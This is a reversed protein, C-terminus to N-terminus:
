WSAQKRWAVTRERLEHYFATRRERLIEIRYERAKALNQASMRSMRAPDMVIERIKAALAPASGPPVIDEQPLLEPIGGVTSGICPLARAMAEVMARPLGEQRSPLVFLDSRDLVTRVAKGAPLQGLFSVREKLGLREALTELECLYAGQGVMAVTLDLGDKVCSAVAEILVEPAKYLQAFTGVHVLNWTKKQEFSRPASVLADDTIRVGSVGVMQQACPYRQQLARQTVYLAGSAKACQRRLQWYSWWRLLPRLPHRVAGPAFSDYPDGVVEVGYPYQMKTLFNRACFGITGPSITIVATPQSLHDKVKAIIAQEPWMTQNAIGWDGLPIVEIGLGLTGEEERVGTITDSVRALIRVNDFVPLYREAVFGYNYNQPSYLTGRADKYFRHDFLLLLDM